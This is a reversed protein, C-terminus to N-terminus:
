TKRIECLRLPASNRKPVPKEEPFRSEERYKRKFVCIM